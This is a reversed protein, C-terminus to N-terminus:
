FEEDKRKLVFVREAEIEDKISCVESKIEDIVDKIESIENANNVEDIKDEVDVFDSRLEDRVKGAVDDALENRLKDFEGGMWEKLRSVINDVVIDDVALVVKVEGTM